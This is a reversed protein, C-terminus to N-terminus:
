SLLPGSPFPFVAGLAPRIIGKERGLMLTAATMVAGTNGASVFAAVEGDKVLNIGVVISSDGKEKVAVVPREWMAVVESAHIISVAYGVGNHKNLEERVVDEQGVLVVEVNGDAAAAIAGKVVEGPAFDGGMADLAIKIKRPTEQSPVIGERVCVM